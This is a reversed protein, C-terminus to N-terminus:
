AKPIPQLPRFGGKEVGRQQKWAYDGTLNIHSWHIPAVHKLLHLALHHYCHKAQKRLNFPIQDRLERAFAMVAALALPWIGPRGLPYVRDNSAQHCPFQFESATPFSPVSPM